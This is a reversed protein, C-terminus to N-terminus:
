LDTQFNTVEIEMSMISAEWRATRNEPANGTLEFSPLQLKVIRGSDYHRDFQNLDRDSRGDFDLSMTHSTNNSRPDDMWDELFDRLIEDQYEIIVGANARDGVIGNCYVTLVERKVIRGLLNSAVPTASYREPRCRRVNLRFGAEQQQIDIEIEDRFPDNAWNEIEDSLRDGEIVFTAQFGQTGPQGSDDPVISSPYFATVFESMSFHGIQFTPAEIVVDGLENIARTDTNLLIWSRSTTLRSSGYGCVKLWPPANSIGSFGATQFDLSFEYGEICETHYDAFSFGQGNACRWQAGDFMAIDGAQCNLRALTDSSPAPGSNNNRLGAIDERNTEIQAQAAALDTAVNDARVELNSIRTEHQALSPRTNALAHVSLAISGALFVIKTLHKM